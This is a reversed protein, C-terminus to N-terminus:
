DEDEPRVPRYNGPTRHFDCGDTAHRVTNRHPGADSMCVSFRGVTKCDACTSCWKQADAETINRGSGAPNRRRARWQKIWAEVDAKHWYHRLRITAAPSPFGNHRRHYSVLEKSVEHGPESLLACVGSTDIMDPAPVSPQGARGHQQMWADIESRRYLETKRRKQAPRPFTKDRTKRSYVGSVSVQLMDAVDLTSILGEGQTANPEGGPGNATVKMRRPKPGRTVPARQAIWAEIEKRRYTEANGRRGVPKPFAPDGRKIGSLASTSKLGLLARVDASVILDDPALSASVTPQLSSPLSDEHEIALDMAAAKERDRPTEQTEPQRGAKAEMRHRAWLQVDGVRWLNARGQKAAPSPFGHHRLYNISRASVGALRATEQIDVLGESPAPPTPVTARSTTHHAKKRGPPPKTVSALASDRERSAEALAHELDRKASELQEVRARLAAVDDLAPDVKPPPLILAEAPAVPAVPNALPAAVFAAPGRIGDLLSDVAPDVLAHAAARLFGEADRQILKEFVQALQTIPQPM